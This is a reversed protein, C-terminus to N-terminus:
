FRTCCVVFPANLNILKRRTVWACSGKSLQM